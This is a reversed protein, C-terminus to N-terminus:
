RDAMLYKVAAKLWSLWRRHVPWESWAKLVRHVALVLALLPLMIAAGVAGALPYGAFLCWVFLVLPWRDAHGSGRQWAM